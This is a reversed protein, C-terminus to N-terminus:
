AGRHVIQCFGAGVGGIGRFPFMKHATANGEGGENSEANAAHPYAVRRRCGDVIDHLFDEEFEAFLLAADQAIELRASFIREEAEQADNGGRNGVIIEAADVGGLSTAFHYGHGEHVVIGL